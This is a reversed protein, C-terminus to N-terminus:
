QMQASRAHCLQAFGGLVRSRFPAMAALGSPTHRRIQAPDIYALPAIEACMEPENLWDDVMEPTMELHFQLAYAAPGFRFAQLECTATRARM